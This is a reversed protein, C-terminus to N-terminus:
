KRFVCLASYNNRSHLVRRGSPQARPDGAMIFQDFLTLGISEAHEITWRIGQQYRNSSIYNTCKVLLRGDARLIRAGEEIGPNILREQNLKPTKESHVTGYAGNFDHLTSTTRGGTSVFPPDFVVTKTSGNREPLQRFDVDDVGHGHPVLRAIPHGLHQELYTWWVGRGYTMDVIKSRLDIYGLRWADYVMEANSPWRTVACVHRATDAPWEGKRKEM